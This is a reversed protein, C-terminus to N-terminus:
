LEVNLWTEPTDIEMNSLYEIYKNQQEDIASLGM